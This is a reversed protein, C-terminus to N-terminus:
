PSKTVTFADLPAGDVDIAVVSLSRDAVDVRVAHLASASRATFASTGAPYLTQGGGGTVVYITGAPDLYAPGGGLSTPAGGRMPHTREYDHDHGNFVLDVRRADFIPVLEADVAATSGHSSSSYAPHHFAVFRWTAATAAPSALDRALWTRQPSGITFAANSDLVVVHANGVDFAYYRETHEEDNTPLVVADALPAGGATEVDHNGFALFVPTAALISAFPITFAARVQEPSGETYAVDGTHLVFDADMAAIRDLVAFEAACGTGSDGVVAFRWAAASGPAVWTRFTLDGGIAVGDHRLRYHITAGPAFGGIALAHETRASADVTTSGYAASPGFEVAGVVPQSSTWVITAGSSSPSSVAPGREVGPPFSAAPSCSAISSGSGGCAGLPALVALLAIPAVRMRCLIARM